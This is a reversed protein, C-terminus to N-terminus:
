CWTSEVFCWCWLHKGVSNFRCRVLCQSGVETLLFYLPYLLLNFTVLLFCLSLDLIHFMRYSVYGLGKLLDVLFIHCWISFNLCICLTTGQTFLDFTFLYKQFMQLVIFINSYIFFQKNQQPSLPKM